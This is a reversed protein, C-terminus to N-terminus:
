NGEKEVISSCKINTKLSPMLQVKKKLFFFQSMPGIKFYDCKGFISEVLSWFAV